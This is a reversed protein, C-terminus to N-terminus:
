SSADYSNFVGNISEQYEYVQRKRKRMDDKVEEEVEVEEWESAQLPLELFPLVNNRVIDNPLSHKLLTASENLIRHHEARYSTLKKLTCKIWGDIVKVKDGSCVLYREDGAWTFPLLENILGIQESM